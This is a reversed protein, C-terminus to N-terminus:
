GAGLLYFQLITGADGEGDDVRGAESVLNIVLSPSFYQSNVKDYYSAILLVSLAM